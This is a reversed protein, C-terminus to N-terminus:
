KPAGRDIALLNEAESVIWDHRKKAEITTWRHDVLPVTGGEASPQIPTYDGNAVKQSIVFATLGGHNKHDKGDKPDIGKYIQRKEKFSYNKAAENKPGSLLTLNGIKGLWAQAQEENWKDKERWESEQYWKQPLIHDVHVRNNLEIFSTKADDTQQYEILALLPRLWNEGYVDGRLTKKVKVVVEDDNMKAEITGRIEELPRKKKVASILNFSLQKIKSTTYGAIWYAYYVRRMESCLKEFDVFEQNRATILVAKWFVQNPLYWFSYMLKSQMKCLESYSEVFSKVGYLALNPDEDKFKKVLEDYLSKEPNHELSYYEYLTFLDTLPEGMPVREIDQIQKSITDIQLWTAMFDSKKKDDSLKGYLHSKVLDAPSLDLGKANLGQFLKIAFSTSACTITILVVKDLLYAVLRDIEGRGKEVYVKQLKGKFIHATNLFKNDDKEKEKQSFEKEPFKVSDLIEHQFKINYGPAAELRLRYEKDVLSKVANLIKNDDQFYLDRLVCFLITLTTLRQQGDVVDFPGDKNRILVMPGLFYTEDGQEMALSIDDWLEEVREDDWRYPRQYDPIRYYSDADGFIKRVTKAEPKFVVSLDEPM